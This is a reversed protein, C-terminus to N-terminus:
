KFAIDRRNEHWLSRVMWKRLEEIFIISGSVCFIIGWDRLSLPVTKFIYHMFPVYVVCLQLGLVFLTVVILWRNSFLGIEVLSKRESRCNWANFWQFMAMTILTMTRAYDLSANTGDYAWQFMVLSCIGMPIALYIMKILLHIDVLHVKKKLWTAHLLDPEQPEMSLGIDLFGDTVLNLWLIQAATLPLPLYSFLAFLVILIEGMNTAFFYLVVRRLTYFIHRGQEIARIINVFSDDLLILDSAQKAVETGIRGMAIGLDAAVLSPVDNVGDGTMAVVKNQTHFLDIIRVKDHPSVRAFVTIKDLYPMMEEDSMKSFISGEIIEDGEKYIGVEKAIYEATAKHDGTAMIVHLGASRAQDVMAKVEPRIADHMGCIGLVSIDTILQQYDSLEAKTSDISGPNFPASGIAVMRLGQTLMRDLKNKLAAPVTTTLAFLIEPAGIVYAIGKGNNIFFGAHYKLHSDFPIEYIKHYQPSLNSQEYGVKQAFM